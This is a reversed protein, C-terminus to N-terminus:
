RQRSEVFRASWGPVRREMMAVINEHVRERFATNPLVAGAPATRLVRASASAAVPPLSRAALAFVDTRNMLDPNSRVYVPVFVNNASSLGHYDGLFYGNAVPATILDFTPSIRHETWTVGDTSRALMLDTQLATTDATNSRLDFYTVGITGNALVHVSPTFAQVTPASNVQVPTSWTLGGDTSRSLAIGDRAGNSFRADQWAVWLHGNPAVAISGLTAGDRILAGTHPDRAGIAFVDAVRIPGTWTIGKDASLLVHMSAVTVNNQNADLRTLFLVVTGNPLVVVINGITQSQTGPNYPVRPADWTAGGDASRVLISPGGGAASLRDWVAFVYNADTPDATISNKDNFFQAGDSILTSIPGWTRGSDTSRSVLMASVSGAILSGGSSALAMQYATGDPAFTVWPDTARQYDGGNGPTGGACRSFPVTSRTWTLGGDLTTAAMVGNASGNSWRDQQWVAIWNNPDRPNVAVYPEVESNLHVTGASVGSCTANFPTAASILVPSDSVLPPLVPPPSPAPAPAPPPPPPSGGDSGGGCGVTAAAVACAFM